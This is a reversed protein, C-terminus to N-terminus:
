NLKSSAVANLVRNRPAVMRDVLDLYEHRKVDWNYETVFELGVDRLAARRNADNALALIKSALDEINESEFMEVKGDFYMQHVRTDSALVPVGVAMFELIKTSLAENAFSQKRKPEVGLDVEAMLAAVEALPAPGRITVQAELGHTKVLANLREREGGDGVVLFKFKAAQPGLRAMALIVLDVGQHWSLTGPYFMTFTNGHDAPAEPRRFIAFDPYNLITTCSEPRASRSVLREHWLHNAIIVHNAYRVSLKEM